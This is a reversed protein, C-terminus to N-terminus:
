KTKVDEKEIMKNKEAKAEKEKKNEKKEKETVEVLNGLARVDEKEMDYEMGAEYFKGNYLVRRLMKVKM